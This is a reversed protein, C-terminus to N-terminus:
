CGRFRSTTCIRMVYWYNPNSPLSSSLLSIGVVLSISLSEHIHLPFTCHIVTSFSSGRGEHWLDFLATSRLPYWWVNAWVHGEKLRMRGVLYNKHACVMQTVMFAHKFNHFPVDNYRRYVALLWAELVELPFQCLQPLNLDVFMFKLYCILQADSHLWNNFNHSSLLTRIKDGIRVSRSSHNSSCLLTLFLLFVSWNLLFFDLLIVRPLPYKVFTQILLVTTTSWRGPLLQLTSSTYNITPPQISIRERHALLAASFKFWALHVILSFSSLLVTNWWFGLSVDVIRNLYNWNRILM